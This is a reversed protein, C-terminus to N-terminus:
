NGNLHRTLPQPLTIEGPLKVTSASAKLGSTIRITDPKVYTEMDKLVNPFLGFITAYGLM